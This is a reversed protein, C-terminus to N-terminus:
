RQLMGNVGNVGDLADNGTKSIIPTPSGASELMRSLAAGKASDLFDISAYQQAVSKRGIRERQSTLHLHAAIKRLQTACPDGPNFSGFKLVILRAEM